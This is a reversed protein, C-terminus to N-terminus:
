KNEECIKNCLWLRIKAFFGKKVEPQEEVKEVKITHTQSYTRGMEIKEGGIPGERPPGEVGRPGPSCGRQKKESEDKFESLDRKPRPPYTANDIKERIEAREERTSGRAIEMAQDKTYGQKKYYYARSHLKQSKPTESKGATERYKKIYDNDEAKMADEIERQEKKNNERKRNKKRWKYKREARVARQFEDQADELNEDEFDKRLSNIERRIQENSIEPEERRKYVEDSM